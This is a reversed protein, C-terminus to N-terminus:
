ELLLAQDLDLEANATTRYDLTHGGVLHALAKGQQDLVLLNRQVVEGLEALPDLSQNGSERGLPGRLTVHVLQALQESLGVVMEGLPNRMPVVKNSHILLDVEGEAADGPIGEEGRHQLGNVVVDMPVVLAKEGSVLRDHALVVLVQAVDNFRHRPALPSLRGFQRLIVHPPEVAAHLLFLLAVGLLTGAMTFVSRSALILASPLSKKALMLPSAGDIKLLPQHVPFTM